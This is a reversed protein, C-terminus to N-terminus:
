AALRRGRDAAYSAAYACPKLIPVVNTMGMVYGSAAKVACQSGHIDDQNIDLHVEAHLNGIIDAFEIYLDAVRYAENLMRMLPKSAKQDFDEESDVQAFIKCGHCGDKHIVIVTTYEAHWKGRHKFRTSDCGFYIKTDENHKAILDIVEQKNITGHLYKRMKNGLFPQCPSSGQGGSRDVPLWRAGFKYIPVRSLVRVQMYCLLFRNRIWKRARPSLLNGM